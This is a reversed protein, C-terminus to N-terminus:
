TYTYWLEFNPGNCNDTQMADMHYISSKQAPSKTIAREHREHLNWYVDKCGMEKLVMKINDERLSPGLVELHDREKLNEL